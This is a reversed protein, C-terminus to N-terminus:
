KLQIGVSVHIYRNYISEQLAGWDAFGFKYECKILLNLNKVPIRSGIGALLGISPSNAGIGQKQVSVTGPASPSSSYFTGKRSGQLNIDIYPGTELFFRTKRGVNFRVTGPISVVNLNYTVDKIQSYHGNYVSKKFLSTHSYSIGAVVNFWSEKMWCKYVGLGFGMRNFTNENALDTRNVSVSIENMIQPYERQQAHICLPFLCLALFTQLPIKM